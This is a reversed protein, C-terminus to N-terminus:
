RARAKDVPRRRLGRAICQEQGGGGPLRHFVKQKTQEDVYLLSDDNNGNNYVANLISKIVEGTSKANGGNTEMYNGGTGGAKQIAFINCINEALMYQSYEVLTLKKAMTGNSLMEECDIVVFQFKLGLNEKNKEDKSDKDFNGSYIPIIELDVIDRGNGLFVYPEPAKQLVNQDDAIVIVASHFPNFMNDDIELHLIANKQLFIVNGENNYLCVSFSYEENGYKAYYHKQETSNTVEGM